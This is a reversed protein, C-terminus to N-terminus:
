SLNSIPLLIQRRDRFILFSLSVQLNQCYTNEYLTKLNELIEIFIRVLWGLTNQFISKRLIGSVVQFINTTFSIKKLLKVLIYEVM